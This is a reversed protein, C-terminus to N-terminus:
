TILTQFLTKRDIIHFAFDPAVQVIDYTEIEQRLSLSPEM